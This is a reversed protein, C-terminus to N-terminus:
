PQFYPVTIEFSTGGEIKNNVKITGNHREVISFCVALGIGSGPYESRGHLRQFPQFIKDAYKDEMGIGNDVVEIFCKKVGGFYSRGIVDTAKILIKPVVNEKHFKMANIILNQFLQRMQTKDADIAPMERVEISAGTEAIMIELDSLVDKLVAGIDVKEFAGAQTHVRSLGLLDRILVQMREASSLMRDLYVSTQEDLKGELKGGLRNGFATIKRLPEQLDHSAIYVFQELERVHSNLKATQAEMLEEARRIESLDRIIGVFRTEGNFEMEAISLYIPFQRSDKHLAILDRGIGIIKANGGGVYNDVYRDHSSAEQAPMLVSLNKGIVEQAEYGFMRCACANFSTIIADPGSTIIADAANDLLTNVYMEAVEIDSNKPVM